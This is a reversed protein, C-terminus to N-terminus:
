RRYLALLATEDGAAVARMLEDDTPTENPM